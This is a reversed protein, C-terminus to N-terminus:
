KKFCSLFFKKATQWLSSEPLGQTLREPFSLFDVGQGLNKLMLAKLDPELCNMNKIISLSIDLTRKQISKDFQIVESATDDPTLGNESLDKSSLESELIMGTRVGDLINWEGVLGMVSVQLKIIKLDKNMWLFVDTETQPGRFWRTQVERSEIEQYDVGVEVLSAGLKVPDLFISSTQM